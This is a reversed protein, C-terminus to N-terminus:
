CSYHWTNKDSLPLSLLACAKNGIPFSLGKAYNARKKSKTPAGARQLHSALESQYSYHEEGAVAGACRRVQARVCMRVCVGARMLFRGCACTLFRARGCTAFLTGIFKSPSQCCRVCMTLVTVSLDRCGSGFRSFSHWTRRAGRKSYHWPPQPATARRAAVALPHSPALSVVPRFPILM